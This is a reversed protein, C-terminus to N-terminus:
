IEWRYWQTFHSTQLYHWIIECIDYSIDIRECMKHCYLLCNESYECYFWILSCIKMIIQLSFHIDSYIILLFHLIRLFEMRFVFIIWIFATFYYRFYVYNVHITKLFAFKYYSQSFYSSSTNWILFAFSIRELPAIFRGSFM